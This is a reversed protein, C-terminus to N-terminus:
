RRAIRLVYAQDAVVRDAGAPVRVAVFFTAARRTRNRITVADTARGPRRSRAVPTAALTRARGSYAYLDADAGPKLTVSARGRAKVRVRYVDVPDEVPAVAAKVTGSVYPDPRSFASGDVFDIGDDPEGRDVAPVPAQLTAALDALGFGTKADWGAAGLDKAGARLLDEYQGSTLRPRAAVLWSALGSVIPAAFSTGTQRTLGDATGDRDLGLPAAVPVAEGPAVLDVGEGATSFAAPGLGLDTAGVTLVHPYAAPYTTPDGREGANGASAVVVAGDGFASGIALQLAHCDEDTEVSLNIVKAGADALDLVGDVVEDCALTKFGFSLLPAGPAIGIVGQGDARAAAVSAVETGHATEV